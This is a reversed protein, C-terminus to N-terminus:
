KEITVQREEGNIILTILIGSNGPEASKVFVGDFDCLAQRAYAPAYLAQPEAGLENLCSGFGFDPYFAGREATLATTINQLLEDIYDCEAVAGNEIYYDGDKIM